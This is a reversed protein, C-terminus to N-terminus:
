SSVTLNGDKYVLTRQTTYFCLMNMAQIQAGANYTRRNYQLSLQNIRENVNLSLYSFQKTNIFADTTNAGYLQNNQIGGHDYLNSLIPTMFAPKSANLFMQKRAPSDIETPILKNSNVLLNIVEKNMAISGFQKFNTNRTPDPNGANILTVEKLYKGDCGYLRVQSQVDTNAVAGELRFSESDYNDYVMQFNNELQEGMIRDMVLVPRNIIYTDASNGNKFLVDPTMKTYEIVLRLQLKDCRIVNSSRILDKIKRKDGKKVAKAMTKYGELDLALFFPVLKYLDIQTLNSLAQGLPNSTQNVQITTNPEYNLSNQYLTSGVSYNANGGDCLEKFSSLYNANRTQCVVTSGSYVTINDILSLSGTSEAYRRDNGGQYSSIGFSILRFNRAPVNPIMFETFQNSHTSAEVYQTQKLM